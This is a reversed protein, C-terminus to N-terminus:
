ISDTFIFRSSFFVPFISFDRFSSISHCFLSIAIYSDMRVEQLVEESRETERKQAAQDSGHLVVSRLNFEKFEVICFFGFFGYSFNM